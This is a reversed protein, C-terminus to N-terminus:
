ARESEHAARGRSSWDMWAAAIQHAGVTVALLLIGVATWVARVLGTPEPASFGTLSLHVVVATMMTLALVRVRLWLPLVMVRDRLRFAVARALSENWMVAVQGSLRAILQGTVSDRILRVVEDDNVVSAPRQLDQALFGRLGSQSSTGTM